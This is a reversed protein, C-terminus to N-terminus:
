RKSGKYIEYKLLRAPLGGNMVDAKQTAKLGVAKLAEPDSSIIWADYGEYRQKLTDGIRAYFTEIEATQLRQGYPPNLVLIGGPEKPSSDFFDEKKINLYDDMGANAANQSVIDMNKSLIDRSFIKLEPDQIKNSLAFRVSEFLNADFENWRQFAFSRNMGPPTQTGILAAEIGFTGSGTMPDLLAQSPKWGTMLLIGAALAENIPAENAVKRYGRKDLSVGSSDLSLIVQRDHVRVHIFIDATHTDVSPRQGFHQRFRDAIADKTKLAVYRSHRFVTGSAVADIVFTQDLSFVDEWPFGRVERYLMEEDSANFEVLPVLVRLATRLALNSRYLLADDGYFRVARRATSVNEGGLATIEEALVTELGTLTTAVM